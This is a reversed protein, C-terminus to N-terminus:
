NGIKKFKHKGGNHTCKPYISYGSPEKAGRTTKKCYICELKYTCGSAKEKLGM